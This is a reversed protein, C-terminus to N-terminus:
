GEIKKVERNDGNSCALGSPDIGLHLLGTNRLGLMLFISSSHCIGLSILPTEDSDDLRKGGYILGMVSTDIGTKEEIIAKLKSVTYTEWVRVAFIEGQLGFVFVNIVRSRLSYRGGTVGLSPFPEMIYTAEFLEHINSSPLGDEGFIAAFGANLLDLNSM